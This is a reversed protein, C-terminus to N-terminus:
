TTANALSKYKAKTSSSSMKAQERANWSILNPGLFCLLVELLGEILLAVLGILMLFLM